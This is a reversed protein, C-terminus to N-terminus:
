SREAEDSHEVWTILASGRRRYLMIGGHDHQDYRLSQDDHTRRDRRSILEYNTFDIHKSSTDLWTETIALADPRELEVHFELETRRHQSCISRANVLLFALTAPSVAPPHAPPEGGAGDPPSGRGWVGHLQRSLGLGAVAYATSALPLRPHSGRAARLVPYPHRDIGTSHSLLSRLPEPWLRLACLLHFVLPFVRLEGSDRSFSLTTSPHM